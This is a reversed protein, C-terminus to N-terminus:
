LDPRICPFIEKAILENKERLRYWEVLAHTKKRTQDAPFKGM